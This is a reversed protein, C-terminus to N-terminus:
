QHGRARASLFKGNLREQFHWIVKQYSFKKMRLIKTMWILENTHHMDAYHALNFSYLIKHFLLSSSHTMLFFGSVVALTKWRKSRFLWLRTTFLNWTQKEVKREKWCDDSHNRSMETNLPNECSESFSKMWTSLFVRCSVRRLNMFIKHAIIQIFMENTHEKNQM